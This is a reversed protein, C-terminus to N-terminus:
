ATKGFDVRDKFIWREPIILLFRLCQAFFLLQEIANDCGQSVEICINLTSELEKIHSLFFTVKFGNSGNLLINLVVAFDNTVKLEAAHKV